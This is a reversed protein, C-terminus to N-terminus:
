IIPFFKGPLRQFQVSFLINLDSQLSLFDFCRWIQDLLDLIMTALAVDTTTFTITSPLFKGDIMAM